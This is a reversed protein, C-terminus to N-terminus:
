GHRDGDRGGAAWNALSARDHNERQDSGDAQQSIPDLGDPGSHCDTSKTEYNGEDMIFEDWSSTLQQEGEVREGRM